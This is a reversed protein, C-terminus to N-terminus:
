ISVPFVVTERQLLCLYMWFRVGQPFVCKKNLENSLVRGEGHLIVDGCSLNCTKLSVLACALDVANLTSPTLHMGTVLFSSIQAPFPVNM